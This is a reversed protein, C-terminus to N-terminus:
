SRLVALAIADADELIVSGVWPRIGAATAWHVFETPVGFAFRRPHPRGDADVVRYPRGTVELGGTEYAGDPDPIRYPRCAGTALLHRLLANTSHRLDTEPIRAEILATAPMESGPIAASGILFAPVDPDTRVRTGPGVVRLVGCEILATMEEIRSLPPGISLYANLPTFWGAVEDRYSSGTIGGHDIALRVENRMDRLVDLAAKLPNGVNGGRANRVDEHLHGVLWRGFEEQDAFTLEGWPREVGAWDWERDAGIGFRRLVATRGAEDPDAFAARFAALFRAAEDPGDREAVLAQHYVTRVEADLLPWVDKRFTAGPTARIRRAADLTLFWPEHRGAAGKQNEGRAQYPVGRRSGAYLVPEHGSPLYQLGRHGTVYKGGRGETLLALVDFFALGLGRIGVTEGAAIGDLDLDAPNGPRIYRLGHHAAHAALRREESTPENSGHGLALVVADLGALLTGDNLTVCQGSPDDNLAIATGKHVTIRISRPATARIRGLVWELYRGFQARSPYDDPGLREAGAWINGAGFDVPQLWDYLSPGPRVPGECAVSEDTFQSIQSTVTNMLLHHSQRTRWTRGAGPPYPDVVHISLPRGDSHNACLRELVALGRPGAGM